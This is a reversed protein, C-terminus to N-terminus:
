MGKEPGREMLSVTKSTVGAIELNNTIWSHPIMHYFKKRTLGVWLWNNKKNNENKIIVM